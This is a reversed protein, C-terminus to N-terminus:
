ARDRRMRRVREQWGADGFARELVERGRKIALKAQQNERKNKIRWEQAAIRELLQKTEIETQPPKHDAVANIGLRRGIEISSLGHVDKLIAALVDRGVEEMPPKSSGYALHRGLREISARVESVDNMTHVLRKTRESAPRADFDPFRARLLGAAYEEASVVAPPIFPKLWKEPDSMAREFYGSGDPFHGKRMKELLPKPLIWSSGDAAELRTLSGEIPPPLKELQTLIDPIETPTYWEIEVRVTTHLSVIGRAVAEEDIWVTSRAENALSGM